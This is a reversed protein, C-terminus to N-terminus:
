NSNIFINSRIDVFTNSRMHKIETPLRFDVVSHGSVPWNRKEFGLSQLNKM